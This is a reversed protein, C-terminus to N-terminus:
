DGFVKLACKIDAAIQAKLEEVTPFRREDRLKEAFVVEIRRGYLDGEFDLLHVELHRKLEGGSVTPRVGINVVARHTTQGIRVHAAYVGNPPIVLGGIDLNATPFGLKRGLKEGEIVTSEIGYPRGLMQGAADLDGAEISVRIRTSSVTEGDLALASLGHVHFGSEAGAERLTTVTGSRKHGFAFDSGVCVSFIQKFGDSLYRIFDQASQRCVDPTFEILLAADVSQDAIADLKQPLSHILPPAKDPAFVSAPHRDFTVAVALGEHQRADAVTQRIVQQHGLHVGDFMGIALCVKRGCRDLEAPHRLVKM